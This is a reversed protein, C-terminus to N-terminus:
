NVAACDGCYYAKTSKWGLCNEYIRRTDHQDIEVVKDGEGM